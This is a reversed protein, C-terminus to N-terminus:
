PGLVTSTWAQTSQKRHGSCAVDLADTHVELVVRDVLVLLVVVLLVLHDLIRHHVVLVLYDLLLHHVVLVLDDLAGYVVLDDLVGLSDLGRRDVVELM